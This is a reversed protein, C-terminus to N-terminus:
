HITAFILTCYVARNFWLSHIMDMVPHTLFKAIACWAYMRVIKWRRINRMSFSMVYFM